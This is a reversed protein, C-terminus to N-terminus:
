YKSIKFYSNGNENFLTALMVYLWKDNDWTDNECIWLM